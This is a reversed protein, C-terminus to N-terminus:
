TFSEASSNKFYTKKENTDSSQIQCKMCIIEKPPSKCSVVLGIKMVFYSFFILNDDESDARTLSHNRIEYECEEIITETEFEVSFIGASSATAFVLGNCQCIFKFCVGNM